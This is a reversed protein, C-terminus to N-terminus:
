GSKRNLFDQIFFIKHKRTLGSHPRLKDKLEKFLGEIRNTTKEINLEPYKEYTFLYTFYRQISALASRVNRHKYPFYGKENPYETKENLFDKHKIKWAHLRLYFENKTSHKLTKIITKLERGAHSKHHKRLKKMVMAVLHFQCMQIPTNFFDKLLGRRGDCTVSQIIYDKERLKNLAKKYYMDKETKVIQNYVVKTSLSDIFVMVGFDRHFFTTNIILNLHKNQPSNLLSKPAKELYRRITRPSCHYKDALQQQTQKGISYDFWIQIANLKHTFTFTKNCNPCQYRQLNNQSGYKHIPSYQCHLCTKQENKM